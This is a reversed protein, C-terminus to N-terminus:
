TAAGRGVGDKEYLEFCQIPCGQCGTRKFPLVKTVAVMSPPKKNKLWPMIGINKEWDTLSSDDQYPAIGSTSIRVDEPNAFVRRRYDNALELYKVPDAMTIPHTGRVVVAKLNKSGMVMGMGTRFASNGLGHVISAFRVLNEGAPGICAIQVEPNELDRRLMDQTQYVDKGWYEGADKIEVEDNHVWLYVPRSSKGKILLNDYGAYKLEGGFFGGFNSSGLYGTEPSKATVETRAASVATGGLPGVGFVLVNESSMPDAGRAIHDYFLKINIGRGGLFDEAYRSTPERTIEGKDLDVLLINGGYLHAM